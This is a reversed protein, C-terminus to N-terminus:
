ARSGVGCVDVHTYTRLVTALYAPHAGEQVSSYAQPHKKLRDVPGTGTRRPQQVPPGSRAWFQVRDAVRIILANARTTLHYDTPPCVNM